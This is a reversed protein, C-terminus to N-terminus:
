GTTTRPGPADILPCAHRLANPESATNSPAALWGASLKPQSAASSRGPRTAPGRAVGLATGLAM